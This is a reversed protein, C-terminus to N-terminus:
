EFHNRLIFDNEILGKKYKTYFIPTYSYVEGLKSLIKGWSQKTRNFGPIMLFLINNSNM